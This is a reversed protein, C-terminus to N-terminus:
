LSIGFRRLIEFLLFYFGATVGMSIIMSLYFNMGSKLLVPLILFLALSPIVLWFVSTSLTTVKLIDKTEIYLWVMAMVSILPISALLAGLFSSRKSIESIAVVLISTILVKLVYFGM